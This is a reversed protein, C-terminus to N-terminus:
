FESCMVFAKRATTLVTGLNVVKSGYAVNVKIDPNISPILTPVVGSSSVSAPLCQTLSRRTRAHHVFKYMCAKVVASKDTSSIGVPSCKNREEHEAPPAAFVGSAGLFLSALTSFRM